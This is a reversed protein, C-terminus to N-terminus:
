SLNFILTSQNNNMTIIFADRLKKLLVSNRLLSKANKCVAISKHTWKLKDAIGYERQQLDENTEDEEFYNYQFDDDGQILLDFLENCLKECQSSLNIFPREIGVISPDIIPRKPHPQTPDLSSEDSVSSLEQRRCRLGWALSMKPPLFKRHAM